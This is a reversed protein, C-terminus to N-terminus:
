FELGAERAAEALAAVRGHFQRAGRDFAVQKIGAALAREGLVTGVKRAAEVNGHPKGVGGLSKELTSAAVLTRGTEDDIIQASIHKNSRFVSLRLRGAARIRNRVHHRRRVRQKRINKQIRMATAEISEGGVPFRANRTLVSSVQEHDRIGDVNAVLHKARRADSM